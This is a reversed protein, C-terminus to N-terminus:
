LIGCCVMTFQLIVCYVMNFMYLIGVIAYFGPGSPLDM